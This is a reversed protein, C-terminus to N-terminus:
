HLQLFIPKFYYNVLLFLPAPGQPTARRPEVGRGPPLGLSHHVGGGLDRQLGVADEVGHLPRGRVPIPDPRLHGHRADHDLRRAVGTQRVRAQVRLPQDSTGDARERLRAHPGM